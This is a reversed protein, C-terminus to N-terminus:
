LIQLQPQIQMSIAKQVSQNFTRLVAHVADNSM